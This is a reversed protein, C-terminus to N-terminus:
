LSPHTLEHATVRGEEVPLLCYAVSLGRWHPFLHSHPESWGNSFWQFQGSIQSSFYLCTQTFVNVIIISVHHLRLLICIPHFCIFLERLCTPAATTWDGDATCTRSSAGVLTYGPNCTYTATNMFTTGSSTDVTGNAPNDLAECDVATLISVM